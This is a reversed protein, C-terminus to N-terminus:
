HELRQPPPSADDQKGIAHTNEASRRAITFGRAGLHLPGCNDTAPIAIM